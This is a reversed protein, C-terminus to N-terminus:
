PGSPVKLKRNPVSAEWRAAGGKLIVFKYELNSGGGLDIDATWIPYTAQATTLVTKSKSPDWSGTAAADGVVVVSEGLSTQCEVNFQVAPM